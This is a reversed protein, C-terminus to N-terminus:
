TALKNSVMNKGARYDDLATDLIKKNRSSSMLYLTEEISNYEKLSIVVVDKDASRSIILKEHNDSVQDLTESLSKRFETVNKVIMVLRNRNHVSNLVSYNLTTHLKFRVLM